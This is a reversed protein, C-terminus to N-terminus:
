PNKVIEVLFMHINLHPYLGNGAHVLNEQLGGPLRPIGPMKVDLSLAIYKQWIGTELSSPMDM